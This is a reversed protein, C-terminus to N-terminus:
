DNRSCHQTGLIMWVVSESQDFAPVPAAGCFFKEQVSRFWRLLLAADEPDEVFRLASELEHSPMRSPYPHLADEGGAILAVYRIIEGAADTKAKMQTHLYRHPAAMYIVARHATNPYTYLSNKAWPMSAVRHGSEKFARSHITRTRIDSCRMTVQGVAM